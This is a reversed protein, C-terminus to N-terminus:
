ESEAAAEARAAMWAGFHRVYAAAADMIEPSDKFNGLGANCHQCLLARVKGTKHCHDVSFHMKVLTDSKCIACVGGQEALLAEYRELTIGYRQQYRSNREIRQVRDANGERWAQVKEPHAKNWEASSLSNCGKCSTRLKDRTNPHRGYQDVSKSVGCKKCKKQKAGPRDSPTPM